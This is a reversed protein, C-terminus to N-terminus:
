KGPKSCPRWANADWRGTDPISTNIKAAEQLLEFSFKQILPKNPETDPFGVGDSSVCLPTVWVAAAGFTFVSGPPCDEPGLPVQAAFEAPPTFEADPLRLIAFFGNTPKCTGTVWSGFDDRWRFVAMCGEPVTKPMEAIPRLIGLQASKLAALEAQAKRHWEAYDSAYKCLAQVREALTLERPERGEPYGQATNRIIASPDGDLVSHAAALEAEAKEARAIAQALDPSERRPLASLFARFWAVGSKGSGVATAWSSEIQADTYQGVGYALYPALAPNDLAHQIVARRINPQHKWNTGNRVCSLPSSPSQAFAADAVAQIINEPIDM